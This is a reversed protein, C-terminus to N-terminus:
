YNLVGETLVKAACGTGSNSCETGDNFTGRPYVGNKAVYFWFTDKGFTNPPSNGNIDIGMLACVSADIPGDGYDSNCNGNTDEVWLTSGDALIAKAKDAYTDIIQWNNGDLKKYMNNGFCGYGAGCNKIINFKSAFANMVNIHDSSTNGGNGSFISSLEIAGGNEAAISTTAQALTSYFKKLRAVTQDNGIKQILTPITLAAVVGIVTLVLLVESLTFARCRTTTILLENGRRYTNKCYM